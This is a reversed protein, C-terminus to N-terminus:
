NYIFYYNSLMGDHTFYTLYPITLVGNVNFTNITFITCIIVAMFLNLRFIYSISSISSFTSSESYVGCFTVILYKFSSHIKLFLIIKGYVISFKRKDITYFFRFCDVMVLTDVRHFRFQSYFICIRTVLLQIVLSNLQM